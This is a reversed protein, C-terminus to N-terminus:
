WSLVYRCKTNSWSEKTVLNMSLFCFDYSSKYPIVKNERTFFAQDTNSSYRSMLCFQSEWSGEEEMGFSKYKM